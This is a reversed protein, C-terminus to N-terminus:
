EYQVTEVQEYMEIRPDGTVGARDMAAKLDPNSVFATAADVSEFGAVVAITNPDSVMRNVRHFSAGGIKPSYEDFVAKWAAYDKVSHQIALVIM